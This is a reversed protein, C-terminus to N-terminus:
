AVEEVRAVPLSAPDAFRAVKMMAWALGPPNDGAVKCEACREHGTEEFWQPALDLTVDAFTSDERREIIRLGPEDCYNLARFLDPLDHYVEGDHIDRGRLEIFWYRRRRFASPSPSM